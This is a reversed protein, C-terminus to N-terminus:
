ETVQRTFDYTPFNTMEGFGMTKFEVPLALMFNFTARLDEETEFPVKTILDFFGKVEPGLDVIEQAAELVRATDTPRNFHQELIRSSGSQVGMTISIMGADKLQQLLEPTM